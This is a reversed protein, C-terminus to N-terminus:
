TAPLAGSQAGGVKSFLDASMFADISIERDDFGGTVRLVIDQCHETYDVAAWEVSPGKKSLFRAFMERVRDEGLDDLPSVLLLSAGHTRVFDAADAFAEDPIRALGAFCLGDDGQVKVSASRPAAPPLWGLDQTGWLARRLSIVNHQDWFPTAAFLLVRHQPLASLWPTLLPQFRRVCAHLMSLHPVTPDRRECITSVVAVGSSEVFLFGSAKASRAAEIRTSTTM